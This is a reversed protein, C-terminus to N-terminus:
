WCKCIIKVATRWGLKIRSATFEAGRAYCLPSHPCSNPDPILPDPILSWPDPILSWPDLLLSWPDPILRIAVQDHLIPGFILFWLGLILSWLDLILSRPAPISSWPAPILSWPNPPHCNTTCIPLLSSPDLIPFWPGLSLPWARLVSVNALQHNLQM